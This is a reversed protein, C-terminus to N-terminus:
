PREAELQRELQDLQARLREIRQQLREQTQGSGEDLCSGDRRQQRNPNLARGARKGGQVGQQQGMRRQGANRQQAFQRGQGQGANWAPGFQGRQGQMNFQRMRQGCYPAGCMGPGCGMGFGGGRGFQARPCFQAGPGFQQGGRGPRMGRMAPAMQQQGFAGKGGAGRGMAAGRGARGGRQGQMGWGQRAGAFPHQRGAQPGSWGQGLGAGRGRGGPGMRRGFAQQDDPGQAWPPGLGPPMGQNPCDWPLAAAQDPAPPAPPVPGQAEAVSTLFMGIAAIMLINSLTKM